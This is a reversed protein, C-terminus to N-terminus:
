SVTCADVRARVSELHARAHLETQKDRDDEEEYEKQVVPVAHQGLCHVPVKGEVVLTQDDGVDCHL